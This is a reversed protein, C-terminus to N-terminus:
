SPPSRSAAFPRITQTGHHLPGCHRRQPAQGLHQHRERYQVSRIAAAAPSHSSVARAQHTKHLRLVQHPHQTPNQPRGNQGSLSRRTPGRPSRWRASGLSQAPVPPHGTPGVRRTRSTAHPAKGTKAGPRSAPLFNLVPWIAIRETDPQSRLLSPRRDGCTFLLRQSQPQTPRPSFLPTASRVLARAVTASM